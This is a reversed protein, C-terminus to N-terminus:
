ALLIVAILALLIGLGQKLSVVEGLILLALVVTLAPYMATMPLVVSAKGRALAQYFLLTGGVGAANTALAWGMASRSMAPLDPRGFAMIGAVVAATVPVSFVYVQQWGSADLARKNLLGWVGWVVTAAIAWLFWSM